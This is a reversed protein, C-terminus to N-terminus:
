RNVVAPKRGLTAATLDRGNVSLVEPQWARGNVRRLAIQKQNLYLGAELEVAGSKAKVQWVGDQTTEALEIEAARKLFATFEAETECRAALMILGCRVSKEALRQASGRYHHVALRGAGPENGDFELKWSPSQGAVGDAAFLRVAVAAKGERVGVVADADAAIEFPKTGDVIKGNLVLQGARVPLLINSALNTFEGFQIAPSLDILALLFGKEQVTALLHPLHHPKNHGGRDTSRVLGFPADLADVVFSILPLKKDSALEACIRRDQPGHYASASGFSFDPTIWVYRDQGPGPGFKSRVVREPLDALALIQPAPRYGNMRAVTWARVSDSLFTDAPPKSRLGALYYSYEVNADSFLFGQNYNRSAPGTMTQRGAFYNAAFDSWYFDLAANLKTKLAPDSTLNHALALSDAQIPSYTPSHYETVGNTRTFALWTEFNAKGEAVAAGDGIAQGLLLLNVLKMLYINSYKMPVNHRRIAAIAARVHPGADKKFSESLRAGHRLLMVSVLQMTFEIANPDKIEPHGQQWPVTGYGPSTPDMDHLSFAHRVLKEARAPEQGLELWGLACSTLQRVSPQPNPNALSQEFSRCGAEVRTAIAFLREAEPLPSAGGTTGAAALLLLYTNFFLEKKVRRPNGPAATAHAIGADFWLLLRLILKM